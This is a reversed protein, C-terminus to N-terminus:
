HVLSFFNKGNMKMSENLHRLTHPFVNVFSLDVSHRNLLNSWVFDTLIQSCNNSFLAKRLTFPAQNLLDSWYTRGTGQSARGKPEEEYESALAGKRKLVEATRKATGASFVSKPFSPRHRLTSSKGGGDEADEWLDRQRHRITRNKVGAHGDAQGGNRRVTQRGGSSPNTDRTCLSRATPPLRPSRPLNCTITLFASSRHHLFPELPKLCIRVKSILISGM